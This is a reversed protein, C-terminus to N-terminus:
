VSESDGEDADVTVVAVQELKACSVVLGALLWFPEMIRVIVFTNTGVAHVLLGTLGSILGISLGAFLPDTTTRYLGYGQRYLAADNTM